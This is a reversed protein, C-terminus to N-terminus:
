FDQETLVADIFRPQKLWRYSSALLNLLQGAALVCGVNNIASSWRRKNGENTNWPARMEKAPEKTQRCQNSPRQNISICPLPSLLPSILARLRDPKLHLTELEM